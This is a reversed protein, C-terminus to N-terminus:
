RFFYHNNFFEGKKKKVQEWISKDNESYWSADFHHIAVSNDTKSLINGDLDMPSLVDTPFVVLGNIIQQMNSYQKYGYRNLVDTQFYLCTNKYSNGTYHVDKECYREYMEKFLLFSKEGGFGLGFAVAPVSYYTGCFAHNRLLPDLSQLLEVDTDLYVGGNEYIIELRACDSVFAYKGKEYAEKMFLVKNYDYNSEDWRIIEYDPCYYKWTEMWIRNQEPIEKKGFWCYHIKKPILADDESSLCSEKLPIHRVYNHIYCDVNKLAEINELMTYLEIYKKDGSIYVIVGETYEEIRTIPLPHFCKVGCDVIKVYNDFVEKVYSAFNYESYWQCAEQFQKGAGVCLLKKNSNKLIEILGIINTNKLIM